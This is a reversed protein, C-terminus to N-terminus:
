KDEMLKNLLNEINLEKEEQWIDATNITFSNPVESPMDLNIKFTIDACDGVVLCDGPKFLNVSDIISKSGDPLLSKILQKDNDNSLKLVIYNACQSLITKNIESPRQSVLLLSVGFKRGEKAVTEFIELLRKQSAGLMLDSSPIYVHAEDCILELPLLDRRDQQLQVNYVLKAIVAILVPIMDHPVDSFDVVKINKEKIDLIEKVFDYLYSQSQYDFMFAYRKDILKDKLLTILSTLKGNNDGKVTKAQGARDGTKYFEGTSVELNNEQELYEIIDNIYYEVPIDEGLESQRASYFAKRLIAIQNQATEEKIKLLNAYFDKFPLFWIPFSLDNNGIKIKKVFSLDSYEGHVDFLIVNSSKYEKIKELFNTVTVSKGSGTNGLIAAHRQFLKNADLYATNGYNAYKGIGLFSAGVNGHLMGEFEDKNLEKIQVNTTPYVDVSKSFKGNVLSGIISCDITSTADTELLEGDNDFQETEENKSIASIISILNVAKDKDEVSMLSNLSMNGLQENNSKIQVKDPTIKILQM